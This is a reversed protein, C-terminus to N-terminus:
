YDAGDVCWSDGCAHCRYRTDDGDGIETYYVPTGGCKPCPWPNRTGGAMKVTAMTWGEAKLEASIRANTEPHSIRTVVIPDPSVSEGANPDALAEDIAQAPTCGYGLTRERPEAMWHGVVEWGVDADGCGTPVDVCRLDWCHEVLVALYDVREDSAMYYGAVFDASPLKPDRDFDVAHKAWAARMRQSRERM